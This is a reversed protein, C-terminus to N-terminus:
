SPIHSSISSILDTQPSRFKFTIRSVLDNFDSVMRQLELVKEINNKDKSVKKLVKSAERNDDWFDSANIKEELALIEKNLVEINLCEKLDNVRKYFDDYLLNIEYMDKFM